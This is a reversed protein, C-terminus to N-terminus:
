KLTDGGAAPRTRPPASTPTFTALRRVSPGSLATSALACALWRLKGNLRSSLATARLFQRVSRLREGNETAELGVAAEFQASMERNFRRLEEDDRLLADLKTRMLRFAAISSPRQKSSSAPHSRVLARTEAFDQFEFRKGALACRIWYDWDEVPPLVADFEGVDSVVARRVLPSNIVMFNDILLQRVVERGAGSIEAMWMRDEGVMSYFLERERGTVFYRMGGYVIDVDRHEELYEVQREFKRRELLDDADLFQVYRGRSAALGTNKAVAQRQNKQAVYHVRADGAACRRVVEATDDTSGDDVVFCEWHEYTQARLSALTEAIFHGYNYTPMIVSVLPQRAETNSNSSM